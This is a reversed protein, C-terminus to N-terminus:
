SGGHDGGLKRSWARCNRAQTSRGKQVNFRACLAANVGDSGRLSGQYHTCTGCIRRLHLKCRTDRPNEEAPRSQIRGQGYLDIEFSM